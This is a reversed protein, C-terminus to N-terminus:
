NISLGFAQDYKHIRELAISRFHDIDGGVEGCHVKAMMMAAWNVDFVESFRRTDEVQQTLEPVSVGNRSAVHAIIESRYPKMFDTLNTTYAILYEAWTTKFRASDWDILLFSGDTGILINPNSPDGHVFMPERMDFTHAMEMSREVRPRLWQVLHSDPCNAKVIEFWQTGYLKAGMSATEIALPVVGIRQAMESYEDFKIAATDLLADIVALSVRLPDIGALSFDFTDSSMGDFHRIALATHKEELWLPQPAYAYKHKQLLSLVVFTHGYNPMSVGGPRAILLVFTDHPLSIKYASSSFGGSLPTINDEQVSADVNRALSLVSLLSM